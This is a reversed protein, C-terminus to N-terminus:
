WIRGKMKFDLFGDRRGRISMYTTSSSTSSWFGSLDFSEVTVEDAAFQVRRTCSALCDPDGRVFGVYEGSIPAM